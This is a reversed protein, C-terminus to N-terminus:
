KGLVGQLGTYIAAATSAAATLSSGLDHFKTAVARIKETKAAGTAVLRILSAAQEGALKRKGRKRVINGVVFGTTFSFAISAAYEVFERWERMEVPFVATGDVVATVWSMAVVAVAALGVALAILLWAPRRNRMTLLIGFPLPILLSVLRLYLTNLDYVITILVHSAVLAALSALGIALLSAPSPMAVLDRIDSIGAQSKGIPLNTEPAATDRLALQALQQEHSEVIKELADIRSLLPKFLYLDRQCAPCVLADDHIDSICYPCRM